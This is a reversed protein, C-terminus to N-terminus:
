TLSLKPFQWRDGSTSGVCHQPIQRSSLALSFTTEIFSVSSAGDSGAFSGDGEPRGSGALVDQQQLILPLLQLRRNELSDTVTLCNASTEELPLLVIEEDTLM